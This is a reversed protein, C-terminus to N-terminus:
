VPGQQCEDSLAEHDVEVGQLPLVGKHGDQRTLHQVKDHSGCREEHATMKVVKFFDSLNPISSLNPPIFGCSEMTRSTPLQMQFLQTDGM